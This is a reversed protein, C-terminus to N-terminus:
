KEISRFIEFQIHMYIYTYSRNYSGHSRKLININSLLLQYRTYSFHILVIIIIIIVIIVNLFM